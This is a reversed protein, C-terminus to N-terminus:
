RFEDIAVLVCSAATNVTSDSTSPRTSIRCGDTASSHKTVLDDCSSHKNSFGDGFTSRKRASAPVSTRKADCRPRLRVRMWRSGNRWWYKSVYWSKKLGSPVLISCRAPERELM